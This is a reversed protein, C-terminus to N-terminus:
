GLSSVSLTSEAFSLGPTKDRSIWSNYAPPIANAVDTLHREEVIRGRSVGKERMLRDARDVDCNHLHVRIKSLNVVSVPLEGLQAIQKLDTIIAKLHSIQSNIIAVFDNVRADDLRAEAPVALQPLLDFDVAASQVAAVQLETTAETGFGMFVTKGSELNDETAGEIMRMRDKSSLEDTTSKVVSSRRSFLSSSMEPPNNQWFVFASRENLAALVLLSISPMPKPQVCECLSIKSLESRRDQWCLGTQKLLINTLTHCVTIKSAVPRRFVINSSAKDWRRSHYTWNGLLSRM